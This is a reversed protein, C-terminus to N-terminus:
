DYYHSVDNKQPQHYCVLQRFVVAIDESSQLLQQIVGIHYALNQLSKCPSPSLRESAETICTEIVDSQHVHKTRECKWDAQATEYVEVDCIKSTSFM